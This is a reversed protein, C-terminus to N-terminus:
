KLHKVFVYQVNSIEYNFKSFVKIIPINNSSVKTSYQKIYCNTSNKYKLPFLALSRGLGNRQYKKYIGHLIVEMECNTEKFLVFGILQDDIIINYLKTGSYYESTLWNKYRQQSLNPKFEYDLYIRDTCFMDISINNLIFNLEDDNSVRYYSLVQYIKDSKFRDMKNNIDNSITLQSEIYYYGMECILKYLKANSIGTKIVIYNYMKEINSIEKKDIIDNYNIDIEAVKCGLNKLEWTCNILKM